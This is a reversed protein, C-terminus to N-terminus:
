EDAEAEMRHAVETLVRRATASDWLLLPKGLDDQVPEFGDGGTRYLWIPYRLRHAVPMSVTFVYGGPVPIPNGIRTWKKPLLDTFPLWHNPRVIM